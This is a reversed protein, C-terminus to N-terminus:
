VVNIDNNNFQFSAKELLYPYVQAFFDSEFNLQLKKLLHTTLKKLDFLTHLPFEVTIFPTLLTKNLHQRNLYLKMIFSKIMQLKEINIEELFALKLPAFVWENEPKSRNFIFKNYAIDRESKIRMSRNEFYAKDKCYWLIYETSKFVGPNVTSFASPARAELAVDLLYCKTDPEARNEM